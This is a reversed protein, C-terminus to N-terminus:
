TEMVEVVSLDREWDEAQLVIKEIAIVHANADLEPLATYQSPWCNYVNYAKVTIGQENLLMIRIDHRFHLLSMASDGAHNNVLNIWSEFELDHTIGRELTIPEVKWTSPSVRAHSPAAGDRHVVAEGTTQLPSVKSVGAVDRGLWSVKFKFNKYPDFRHTNVPFPLPM